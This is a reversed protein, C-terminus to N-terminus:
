DEILVAPTGDAVTITAPLGLVAAADRFWGSVRIPVVEGKHEGSVVLLEISLAVGDGEVEEGEVEEGEVEEADIVVAEYDGDPLPPPHDV